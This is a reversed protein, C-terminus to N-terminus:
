LAMSVGNYIDAASDLAEDWSFGRGFVQGIPKGKRPYSLRISKLQLFKVYERGLVRDVALANGKSLYENSHGTGHILDRYQPNVQNNQFGNFTGKVPM